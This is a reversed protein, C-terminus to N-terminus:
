LGAAAAAEPFLARLRARALDEVEAQLRGEDAPQPARGAIARDTARLVEEEVEVLRPLIGTGARNVVPALDLYRDRSTGAFPFVREFWYAAFRVLPPAAGVTLAMSGASAQWHPLAVSCLPHGVRVWM